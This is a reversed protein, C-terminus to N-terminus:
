RFVELIKKYNENFPIELLKKYPKRSPIHFTFPKIKRFDVVKNKEDIWLIVFPFFVFVSTLSFRVPKRFEFLLAKAKEKSIFMLGSTFNKIGSFKKVDLNFKKGKYVFSFKQM